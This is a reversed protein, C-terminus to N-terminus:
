KIIENGDGVLTFAAWQPLAGIGFKHLAERKASALAAATDAGNGLSAYFQTVLYTAFTDEVPWLTALVSRAGAFLFSRVLSANDFSSQFIPRGTDCGSLVVLKAALRLHAIERAQLLGDETSGPRDALLLATRDPQKSDVSVHVAFHLVDYSDLPESKLNEETARGGLLLTSRPLASAAAMLERRSNPLSWFEPPGGPDFLGLGMEVPVGRNIAALLNPTITRTGYPVAGIGLLGEKPHLDHRSRLKYLVTASPAYTVVHTAALFQRGDAILAEFPVMQLRGHGVIILRNQPRGLVPALLVRGLNEAAVLSKQPESIGDLFAAILAELDTRPPLRFPEISNHGIVLLLSNPEDLAYELVLEDARLSRQFEALPVRISNARIPMGDSDWIIIGRKEAEWLDSLIESRQRSDQAHLLLSQLATVRKAAPESLQLALRDQGSPARLSEAIGRAYAEELANFAGEPHHELLALRVQGLYISALSALLFDKQEFPTVSTLLRDVLGSARAYTREAQSLNGRKLAIEASTALVRPLDFSDGAAFANKVSESAFQEADALSQDGEASLTALQATATAAVRRLHQSEALRAAEQFRDRAVEEQGRGKALEGLAILVRAQRVEMRNRRAERLAAYLIGEGESARGLAILARGRGLQATFPFGADPTEAALKLASEFFMLADRPHGFEAFGEGFVARLRIVYAIDHYIEATAYSQAVLKAAHYVEGKYFAITGLEARARNVWIRDDLRKALASVENWVAESTKPEIQFDIDGKAVLCLLRLRLDKQGIPSLLVTALYNSVDPLSEQEIEGRLLGIHSYLENRANGETAFLSEANRFLPAAAQWNHLFALRSAETLLEMPALPVKRATARPTTRPSVVLVVVTFAFVLSVFASRKAGFWRLGGNSLFGM